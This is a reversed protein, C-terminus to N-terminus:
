RVLVEEIAAMARPDKTQGLWFFAQKRVEPNRNTRAVRILETVAQDRPLQSLAFVAKKKVETEPDDRIADGIAAAARDGAKHALWFLAQSRVPPSPDRRALDILSGVAEPVPSQALGFAVAKRIEDSAHSRAIRVLSEWGRRGRMNGIWFVAKKRIDDSNPEGSLRDLAADASRDAHLAIAMIERDRSIGAGDNEEGRSGSRDAELSELWAVSEAPRVNELWAVASGGADVTCDSPFVRLRTPRGGEIRVFILTMDGGTRENSVNVVSSGRGELSCQGEWGGREESSTRVSRDVPAPVAWGFWAPGAAPAAALATRLGGEASRVEIRAHSLRAPEQGPLPAASSGKSGGWGGWGGLFLLVVAALSLLAGSSMPRAPSVRRATMM